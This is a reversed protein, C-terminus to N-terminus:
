FGGLNVSSIHVSTPLVRFIEGGSKEGLVLLWSKESKGTEQSAKTRAIM